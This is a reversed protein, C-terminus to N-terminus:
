RPASVDPPADPLARRAKEPSLSQLWRVLRERVERVLEVEDASALAPPLSARLAPDEAAQVLLQEALWYRSRELVGFTLHLSPGAPGAPAHPNHVWGRPIWLVDGPSLAITRDPVSDALFAKQEDTFGVLGWNQHPSMPDPVLPRYLEWVKHGALQAIVATHTDWHHRFGQAGPPTRYANAQVPHGLEDALTRCFTAIAPFTEHLRRLSLTYGQEIHARVMGPQLRDGDAYMRTAARQGDKVLVTQRATLCDTDVLQ